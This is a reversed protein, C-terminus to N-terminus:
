LWLPLLYIAGVVVSTLFHTVAMINQELFENLIVM